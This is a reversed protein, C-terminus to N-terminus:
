LKDILKELLTDTTSKKDEEPKAFSWRGQTKLWFERAQANGNLADLYLNTGLKAMKERKANFLEHKYHRRLTKEDIDLHDSIDAQSCGNCSLDAVKQRLADTPEHEPIGGPYDRSM